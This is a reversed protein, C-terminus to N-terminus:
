VEPVPLRSAAHFCLRVLEEFMALPDDSRVRKAMSADSAGSSARKGTALGSDRGPVNM